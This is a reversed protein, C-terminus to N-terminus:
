IKFQLLVNNVAPDAAGDGGHMAVRFLVDSKAAGPLTLFNTVKGGTSALAIVDGGAGTGITTWGSAATLDTTYQPYLRPSNASGSLTTVLAAVRVSTFASADIRLRYISATGLYDESNAQNTLTLNSPNAYIPYPVVVALDNRVESLTRNVWAGSKYQMIDGEAPVLAEITTLNSGIVLGNVVRPTTPSDYIVVAMPYNTGVAAPLVLNGAATVGSGNVFTVAGAGYNVFQVASEDTLQDMTFNFPTASNFKILGSADSQVISDAGTVERRIPAIATQVFATTAIQTTSTGASATPAAPTGTFTPSALPAKETDLEEIAAQVDTAAISGAPTFTVDEAASAGGGGGASIILFGGNGGDLASDYSMIYEQEDVLDGNGAQTTPNIYIKRTGVSNFNITSAGTSATKVKVHVKMGNAYANIHPVLTATYTDTGSTDAKPFAWTYSDDLTYPVSETTDLVLARSDDAGIEKATQDKFLGSGSDNYKVLTNAKSLQTM